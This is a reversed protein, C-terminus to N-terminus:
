GGWTDKMVAGGGGCIGRQVSHSTEKGWNMNDQVSKPIGDGRVQDRGRGAVTVCRFRGVMGIRGATEPAGM